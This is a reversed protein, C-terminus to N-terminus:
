KMKKMFDKADKRLLLCEVIDLIAYFIIFMGLVKALLIQGSFPNFIVLLGLVMILIAIILTLLWSEEQYRKLELAYQIKITSSIIMWLGLGVTLISTLALPNFVIMAGLLISLIGLVLEFDFFRLASKNVFFKVLSNVGAIMILTGLVYGIMENALGPKVFLFVGLLLFLLSSVISSIIVKHFAKKMVKEKRSNM